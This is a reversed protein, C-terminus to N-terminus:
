SAAGDGTEDVEELFRAIETLRRQDLAFLFGSGVARVRKLYGRSELWELAEGAERTTRDISEELLRWRVFGEPTDAAMPHKMCYRLLEKALRPHPADDM